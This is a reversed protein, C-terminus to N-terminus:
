ARKSTTPCGCSPPCSCADGCQCTVGCCCQGEVRIMQAGCKCAPNACSACTCNCPPKSSIMRIEKAEGAGQVWASAGWTEIRVPGAPFQLPRPIYGEGSSPSPGSRPPSLGLASMCQSSAVLAGRSQAGRSARRVLYPGM